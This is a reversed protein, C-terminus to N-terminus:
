AIIGAFSIQNVCFILKKLVFFALLDILHELKLGAYWNYCTLKDCELDLYITPLDVSWAM